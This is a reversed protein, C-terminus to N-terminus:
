PNVVRGLFLLTGTSRDRIAFFFPHDTVFSTSEPMAASKAQGWTAAAATTGEEDVEIFTKQAVLSLFVKEGETIGSFDSKNEDFADTIGLKMLAGNLHYSAGLKFKALGLQVEGTALNKVIKEFLESSLRSELAGLGGVTTPLLILMETRGGRYPLSIAQFDETQYFEFNKVTFMMPVSPPNEQDEATRFPRPHTNEKMFADRWQGHFYIASALVLRTEASLDGAAIMNEIKGGTEKAAWRNITQRANQPNDFFDVQGMKVAFDNRMTQSFDDRVKLKVDAWIGNALNPSNKGTKYRLAKLLGGYATKEEADLKPLHLAALMQQRTQAEAGVATMTLVTHLGAPSFFLNEEAKAESALERYMDFAFHQTSRAIEKANETVVAPTEEERGCGCFGLLCVSVMLWGTRLIM